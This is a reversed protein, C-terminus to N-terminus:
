LARLSVNSPACLYVIIDAYDPDNEYAVVFDDFLCLDPIVQTSNLSVCTVCRYEDEDDDTSQRSLATWPDYDPRRSLANAIINTKDPKCHM